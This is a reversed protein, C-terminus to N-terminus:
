RRSWWSSVGTIVVIGPLVLLSLFFVNRRQQDNMLVRRESPDRPRIAILDEDQVAWNVMNMFLDVNLIPAATAQNTVFNSDGVVVFRADPVEGRHDVTAAMAMGVPGRMQGPKPETRETLEELDTEAWSNEDATAFLELMDTGDPVEEAMTVSRAMAFVSMENRFNRVIPHSSYSQVVPLVPQQALADVVVDAGLVIGRELVFAVLEDAESEFEPDVLFIVSGGRDLYDDLADLEVDLFDTRPGAIVLTAADEPVRVVDEDLSRALLLPTAEYNGSTLKDSIISLGHESQDDLAKEGHGSTFYIKKTDGKLARIIANTVDVETAGSSEQRREGTEIITTGLTVPSGPSTYPVAREPEAEPDVIVLEVHPSADAYLQLLDTAVYLQPNSRRDLHVITLDSTLEGLIKTTQESLSYQRTFTADWQHARKSAIVNVLVIIGVFILSLTFAHAGAQASRKRLFSGLDKWRSVISVVTFGVGAALFSMWYRESTPQMAWLLGAAVLFGLGLAGMYPTLRSV